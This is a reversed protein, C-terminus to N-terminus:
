RFILFFFLLVKENSLLIYNKTKIDYKLINSSFSM